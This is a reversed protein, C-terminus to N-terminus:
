SAMGRFALSTAEARTSVGLQAILRAMGQNVTEESIGLAEAIESNTSGQTLLHLMQREAEDLAALDVGGTRADAPTRTTPEALPGALEVLQRGLPGRLWRVRMDEDLTGQAIRSLQMQLWGKVQAQMEPPGGALIARSAPLVIDLNADENMTETLAQMAAGAAAVARELQGRALAVQSVSADAQAAWTPHGSLGGALDKVQAASREALELLQEDGSVSGLRASELALRAFAECRAASRGQSTAMAIVQELHRRMGAADGEAARLMGRWLELQRARAPTHYAAAATAATELWRAAEELEGLQIHVLAVGGAAAFEISQDGSLRAARHAEIGRSLMLDPVIKARAYVHIGYLMQLEQRARESETVMTSIRGTIRRIEELHRASSTFAIVPAYNVYAMAIVTSMVGTRDDLREYIDLAREHLKGAEVLLPGIPLRAVISEIPEGTMVLQSLEFVRGALVEGAFWNRARSINIIGLERSAAALSREDSLQEALKVVRRYAEEAGDLDVDGSLAGFSEGVTSRTLAQGLELNARLEAQQDGLKSARDRVRRALEAAAEEDHAMRLAAARRLQVDFELEPDNIAEVLAGLEALGTLRDAARRLTAFADDRATLLARRDEPTSVVPLAQEVMRLAEEAANAELAAVAAAVSFRAARETDGAALAHQALLPLSAPSPDGGELLLDVLAAHVQRRRTHSLENAAFQRVQEHTFTFDAADREDHPILLGAEVAPQLEDAPETGADHGDVHARVARLDRLSFSRGLIAADALVARTAPPLRAARRQILTRVASPVLRAANRGLRWEGGVQQLTGADRHTRVLEEIIFPVGESQGHMATASNGDLPGGLLTRLLESTEMQTLRAPRLRRVIGMREMDAVLNVAESVSEFEAPRITLLLFIPSDGASRVVYRLMRLSDDDAWQVDDLLVALPRQAAITGLAVCALDFARLQKTEPPLSELGAEHRGSIADFVRRLAEEAPTGGAAQRLSAAAFVSQALLFPGRIEEDATVAVTTFGSAGAMEAAALLLRTKGVGPEGELTLAVMRQRAEGIEHEIAALETSRGVISGTVRRLRVALSSQTGQIPDLLSAGAAGGSQASRAGDAQPQGHPTVM